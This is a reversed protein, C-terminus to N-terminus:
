TSRDSHRFRLQKSFQRLGVGLQIVMVDLHDDGQDEILDGGREGAAVADLQAAEPCKRHLVPGGADAAVRAGAGADLDGLLVSREKPSALLQAAPEVLRILAVSGDKQVYRRCLFLPTIETAQTEHLIGLIHVGVWRGSPPNTEGRM